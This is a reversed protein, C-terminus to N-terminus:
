VGKGWFVRGDRGDNVWLGLLLVGWVVVFSSSFLLWWRKKWLCIAIPVNRNCTTHQRQVMCENMGPQECAILGQLGRGLGYRWEHGWLHNFEWVEWASFFFFETCSSKRFPDFYTYGRRSTNKLAIILNRRQKRFTQTGRGFGIM